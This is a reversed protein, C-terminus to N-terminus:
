GNMKIKRERKREKQDFKNNKAMLTDHLSPKNQAHEAQDADVITTTTTTTKTNEKENEIEKQIETKNLIKNAM